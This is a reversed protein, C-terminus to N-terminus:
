QKAVVIPDINQSAWWDEENATGHLLRHHTACLPVTGEDSVKMGMARPQAFRIPHAECPTRDCIPCPESAIFELHPKDRQSRATGIPVVASSVPTESAPKDSAGRTKGWQTPGGNYNPLPPDSIAFLRCVGSSITVFNRCTSTSTPCPMARISAILCTQM